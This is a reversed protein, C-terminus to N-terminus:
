KPNVFEKKAKINYKEQILKNQMETKAVLNQYGKVETRLSRNESETNKIRPIL